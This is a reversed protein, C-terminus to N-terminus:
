GIYNLSKKTNVKNKLKKIRTPIIVLQEEELNMIEKDLEKLNLKLKLKNNLLKLIEKAPKVGLYNPHAYTEALISVAPIKRKGALGVLLGSVGIIPGISTYTTNDKYTKSYKKRIKHSNAACYVRPAKPNKEKPIGDLTIIEKKGKQKEILDLINDCFEYCSPEDLPQIDGTLLLLTHDKYNKYFVEITPLEVINNENVFVFHPLNYSAIEFLKKAKLSDIMFDTAIKGVNGIGPLGEILVPNKIKPKSIQHIKWSM